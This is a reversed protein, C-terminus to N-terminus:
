DNKNGSFRRITVHGNASIGEKVLVKKITLFLIKCDLWLSQNEVYWADYEFKQEWTISNRGNIQAWGTIGPLVDHRTKQRKNYLPLYDMRLPRPGVFSMEGKFVNWLEPLEDLSTSRLFAGFSTMRESDPLQNGNTDISDRM